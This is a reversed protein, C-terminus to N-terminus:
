SRGITFCPLMIFKSSVPNASVGLVWAHSGIVFVLLDFGLNLTVLNGLPQVNNWVLFLPAYPDDMCRRDECSCISVLVIFSVADHIGM